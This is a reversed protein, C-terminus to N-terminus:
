RVLLAIYIFGFSSGICRPRRDGDNRNWQGLIELCAVGHPLSRVSSPELPMPRYDEHRPTVSPLSSVRPICSPSGDCRPAYNRPHRPTQTPDFSDAPWRPRTAVSGQETSEDSTEDHRRRGQYVAVSPPLPLSLSSSRWRRRERALSGYQRSFWVNTIESGGAVRRTGINVAVAAGAGLGACAVHISRWGAPVGGEGAGM